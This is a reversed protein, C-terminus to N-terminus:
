ASAQLYTQKFFLTNLFLAKQQKSQVEFVLMKCLPPFIPCALIDVLTESHYQYCIWYIRVRTILFLKDVFTSVESVVFRDDKLGRVLRLADKSM